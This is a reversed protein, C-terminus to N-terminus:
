EEWYYAGANPTESVRIRSIKIKKTNIRDSLMQYLYKAINESSPNVDHFPPRENINFHDLGSLVDKVHEKILRFDIGIGTEDLELCKVYVRIMWNHGHMRACDGPYGRLAHAASFHTEIYVEYVGGM